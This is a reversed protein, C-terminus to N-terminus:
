RHLHNRFTGNVLRLYRSGAHCPAPQGNSSTSSVCQRPVILSGSRAKRSNTSKDPALSNRMAPRPGPQRAQAPDRPRDYRISMGWGSYLLIQRTPVLTLLAPPRLMEEERPAQSLTASGSITANSTSVAQAGVAPWAVSGAPWPVGIALAGAADWGIGAGRSVSRSKTAVSPSRRGSRLHSGDPRTM